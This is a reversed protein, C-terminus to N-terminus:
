KFEVGNDTFSVKDIPGLLKELNEKALQQFETAAKRDNKKEALDHGIVVYAGMIASTEYMKQKERASMTQFNADKSLAARVSERLGKGQEPTLGQKGAYIMYNAEIYFSTARAVDNLVVNNANAIEKYYNLCNTFIQELEQREQPTKTMQAAMQQPVITGAVPRFTTTANAARVNGGRGARVRAAAGARSQNNRLANSLVLNSTNNYHTAIQLPSPVNNTYYHPTTQARVVSMGAAVIATIMLVRRLATKSPM